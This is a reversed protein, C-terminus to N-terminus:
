ARFNAGRVVDESYKQPDARVKDMLPPYQRWALAAEIEGQIIEEPIRAINDHGLPFKWIIVNQIDQPADKAFRWWNKFMDSVVIHDIGDRIKSEDRFDRMCDENGIFARVISTAESVNLRQDSLRDKIEDLFDSSGFKNYLSIALLREDLSVVDLIQTCNKTSAHIAARVLLSPDVAGTALEAETVQPFTIWPSYGLMRLFENESKRILPAVSTILESSSKSLIIEIKEPDTLSKWYAQFIQPQSTHFRRLFQQTAAKTEPKEPTSTAM